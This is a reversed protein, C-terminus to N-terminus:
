SPTKWDVVIETGKGPESIVSLAANITRAQERMSRLGTEDSFVRDTQFGQGDDLIRLLAHQPNQILEIRSYLARSHVVQNTVAEQAIRYLAVKTESPLARRGEVTVEVAMSARGAVAAALQHLLNELDVEMLTQPRLELLLNRTEALAAQTLTNLEDLNQQQMEPKMHGWQRALTQSLLSAAFLTQTIADQLDCALRQREEIAALAQAQRYTQANRIAVSAQHAFASLWHAHASTFAGPIQHELNLFGIVDEGVILPAGLYSAPVPIGTFEVWGSELRVNSRLCSQRSLVMERFHPIQSIPANFRLISSTQDADYGACQVVRTRREEILIINAASYDVVRKLNVLIRELVEEMHLTSTLVMATDSLAEILTRQEREADELRKRQITNEIIVPLMTLYNRRQDKIIYDYAGAKMANVAIQQDGAGTVVIVPTNQFLELVEFATGDGLLYDSIVIDFERSPLIRKLEDFSAVTVFDYPLQNQQVFRAMAMQDIRDDEILLVSLLSTM